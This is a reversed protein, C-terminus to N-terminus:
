EDQFVIQMSNCEAAGTHAIATRIGPWPSISISNAQKQHWLSNSQQWPTFHKILMSILINKSAIRWTHALKSHSGAFVCPGDSLKINCGRSEPWSRWTDCNQDVDSCWSDRWLDSMYVNMYKLYLLYHIITYMIIIKEHCGRAVSIQLCHLTAHYLNTKWKVSKLHRFELDNFLTQGILVPIFGTFWFGEGCHVITELGAASSALYSEEQCSDDTSKM